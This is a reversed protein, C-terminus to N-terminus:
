TTADPPRVALMADAFAYAVKAATMAEEHIVDDLKVHNRQTQPLNNFAKQAHNYANSALNSSAMVSCALVDRLTLEKPSAM